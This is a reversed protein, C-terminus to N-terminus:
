PATHRCHGIGSGVTSFSSVRRHGPNTCGAGTDDDYETLSRGLSLRCLIYGPGVVLWRFTSCGEGQTARGYSLTAGSADEICTLALKLPLSQRSDKRGLEQIIRICLQSSTSPSKTHVVRRM